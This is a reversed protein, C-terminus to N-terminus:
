SLGYARASSETVEQEVKGGFTYAPSLVPLVRDVHVLVARNAPYGPGNVGLLWDHLWDFVEDGPDRFEAHGKIRYGRRRLFDVSNIELRNDHQLNAITGPSNIDMFAVHTDDYVRVSAKPSLSPSGDPDITAVFSLRAQEVVSRVDEDVYAM